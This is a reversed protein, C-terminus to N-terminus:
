SWGCSIRGLGGLSFFSNNESAWAHVHYAAVVEDHFASLRVSETSLLPWLRTGIGVFLRKRDNKSGCACGLDSSEFHLGFLVAAALAPLVFAWFVWSKLLRRM